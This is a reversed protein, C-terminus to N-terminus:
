FITCHTAVYMLRSENFMYQLPRVSNLADTNVVAMDSLQTSFPFITEIEDVLVLVMMVGADVNASFAVDEDSEIGCVSIVEVVDEVSIVHPSDALRAYEDLAVDPPSRNAM